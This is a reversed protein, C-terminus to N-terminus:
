GNSRKGKRKLEMRESEMMRNIDWFNGSAMHKIAEDISLGYYPDHIGAILTSTHTYHSKYDTAVQMRIYNPADPEYMFGVMVGWGKHVHEILDHFNEYDRPNNRKIEMLDYTM